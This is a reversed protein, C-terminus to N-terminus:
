SLYTMVEYTLQVHKINEDEEFITDRSVRYIDTQITGSTFYHKRHLGSASAIAGDGDVSSVLADIDTADFQNNDYIDVTLDFDERKQNTDTFSNELTYVIYPYAVKAPAETDFVRKSKTILFAYIMKKLELVNM